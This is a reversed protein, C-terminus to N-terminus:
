LMRAFSPLGRTRSSSITGEGSTYVVYSFQQWENHSVDDIVSGLSLLYAKM